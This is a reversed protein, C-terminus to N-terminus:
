GVVVNMQNVKTFLRDIHKQYVMGLRESTERWKAAPSEGQGVNNTAPIPPIDNYFSAIAEAVMSATLVRVVPVYVDSLTCPDSVWTHVGTYTVNMSAAPVLTQDFDLIDVTASPYVRYTKPHVFVLPRNGTPYEIRCITSFGQVWGSPVPATNADTISVAEFLTAPFELSFANVARQAHESLWTSTNGINSHIVIFQTWGESILDVVSDPDFAM